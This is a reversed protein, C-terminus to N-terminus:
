TKIIYNMVVYPPYNKEIASEGETSSNGTHNTVAGNVTHSHSGSSSITHVHSDSSTNVNSNSVFQVGGGLVVDGGSPSSRSYSHSHNDSNTTHTHSSAATSFNDAHGHNISHTHGPLTATQFGGKDGRAFTTGTTGDLRGAGMPMRARLDPVNFTGSAGGYTYDIVAWLDAYQGTTSHASGDCLLYGGPASAGAYPFVSGTPIVGDVYAKTAPHSDVTPNGPLVPMATLNPTADIQFYNTKIWSLLDNFNDQVESAVAPSNAAIQYSYNFDVTM